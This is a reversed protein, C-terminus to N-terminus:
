KTAGNPKPKAAQKAKAEMVEMGLTHKHEASEAQLSATREDLQAKRDMAEADIAAQQQQAQADIAMEERKAQLEMSMKERMMQMEERQMQLDAQMKEMEMAQKQRAAQIDMAAQERDRQAEEQARQSEMQQKQMEAQAKIQEPSPPAPPPNKAKQALKDIAQEWAGEVDRGVGFRRFAFLLSQGLAPVMEPIQQGIMAAKELFGGVATFLEVVAEKEAQKDIEITSDTEIDIRFTRMKDNKLLEVCQAFIKQALEQRQQEQQQEIQAPDPPQM